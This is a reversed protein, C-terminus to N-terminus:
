NQPVIKEPGKYTGDELSRELAQAKKMYEIQIRMSERGAEDGAQIFYDQANEYDALAQDTKGEAENKAGSEVLKDARKKADETSAAPTNTGNNNIATLAFYTGAAILVTALIAIILTRKKYQM